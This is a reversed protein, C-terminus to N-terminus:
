EHNNKSYKKFLEHGWSTLLISTFLDLQISSNNAFLYTHLISMFIIEIQILTWKINFIYKIHIM